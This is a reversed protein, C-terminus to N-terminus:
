PQTPVPGCAGDFIACIDPLSIRPQLQYLFQGDIFFKDGERQWTGNIEGMDNGDPYQIYPQEPRFYFKNLTRGQTNSQYLRTQHDDFWIRSILNQAYNHEEERKLQGHAFYFLSAIKGDPQYQTYTVSAGWQNSQYTKKGDASDVQCFFPLGNQFIACQANDRKKCVLGQHTNEPLTMEECPIEEWPTLADAPEQAPPLPTSQTASIPETSPLTQAPIQPTDASPTFTAKSDCTLAKQAWYAGTAFGLTFCVIALIIKKM